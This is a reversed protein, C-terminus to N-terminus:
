ETTDASDAAQAGFRFDDIRYGMKGGSTYRLGIQVSSEKAFNELAESYKDGDTGDASGDFVVRYLMKTGWASLQSYDVEGITIWEPAELNSGVPDATYVVELRANPEANNVNAGSWWFSVEKTTAGAPNVPPTILWKTYSNDAVAQYMLINTWNLAAAYYTKLDGSTIWGMEETPEYTAGNANIYSFNDTFITIAPAVEILEVSQTLTYKVEVSEGTEGHLINNTFIVEAVRESGGEATFEDYAFIYDVTTNDAGTFEELPESPLTIWGSEGATLYNISVDISNNYSLSLAIEGADAWVSSEASDISVAAYPFASQTVTFKDSVTSYDTILTVTVTAVRESDTRNIETINLKLTNSGSYEEGEVVCWEANSAATWAYQGTSEVDVSISTVDTSDVDFNSEEVTIYLFTPSPVGDTFLQPQEECSNCTAVLLIAAAFGRCSNLINNYARM